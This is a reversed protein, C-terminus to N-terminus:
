QEGGYYHMFIEELSPEEITLREIQQLQSLAELLPNIEGSYLFEAKEGQVSLSRVGSLRLETESIPTRSELHVRSLSKERLSAIDEVAVVRGEKIIAVRRCIRQVESLIHSSFFVTVGQENERRLIEYFRAQMLPDLGNTPEDLILVKPKHLLCQLIAVKKKNGSSLDTINRFLEVQFVEALEHLRDNLPAGYFRASYELLEKVTMSDYYEVESPLYGTHKKIEKADQVVDLGFISARGRTPFILNVLTRITTSKGAGNPGVFGFIEGEEVELDLDVIGRHKGYFKTLKRTEIVKM